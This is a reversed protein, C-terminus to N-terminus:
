PPTTVNTTMSANTGFAGAIWINGGLQANGLLVYILSHQPYLTAFALHDPATKLRALVEPSDPWSGAIVEGPAVDVEKANSAAGDIVDLTLGRNTSPSVFTFSWNSAKGVAHGTEDPNIQARIQQPQADPKWGQATKLAAAFAEYASLYVKGPLATTVPANDIKGSAGDVSATWVSGPLNDPRSTASISWDAKGDFGTQLSLAIVRGQPHRGFFDAGGHQL